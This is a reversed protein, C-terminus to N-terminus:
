SGFGHLECDGIGAMFQHEGYEAVLRCTCEERKERNTMTPSWYPFADKDVHQDPHRDVDIFEVELNALSSWVEMVTGSKIVICIRGPHNVLM